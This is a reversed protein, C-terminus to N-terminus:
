LDAQTMLKLYKKRYITREAELGKIRKKLIEVHNAIDKPGSISSPLNNKEQILSLTLEKNNERLQTLISDKNQIEGKLQKIQSELRSNEPNESSNILERLEDLENVQRQIEFEKECNLDILDKIKELSINTTNILDFSLKSVMTNLDEVEETFSKRLKNIDRDHLYQM